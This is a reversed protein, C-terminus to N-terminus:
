TAKTESRLTLVTLLSQLWIIPYLILFFFIYACIFNLKNSSKFLLKIGGVKSFWSPDADRLHCIPTELTFSLSLRFPSTNKKKKSATQKPKSVFSNSILM